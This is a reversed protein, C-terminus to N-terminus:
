DAAIAVVHMHVSTNRNSQGGAGYPEVTAQVNVRDGRPLVFVHAANAHFNISSSEGEFSDDQVLHDGERISLIMGANRTSGSYTARGSATVYVVARQNFPGIQLATQAANGASTSGSEVTANLVRVSRSDPAAWSPSAILAAIAMTLVFKKM